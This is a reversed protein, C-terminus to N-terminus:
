VAVHKRIDRTRRLRDCVMGREHLAYHKRPPTGGPKVGQAMALSRFLDLLSRQFKDRM